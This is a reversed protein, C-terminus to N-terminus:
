SRAAIDVFLHCYFQQFCYFNPTLRIRQWFEGCDRRLAKKLNVRILYRTLAVTCRPFIGPEQTTAEDLLM